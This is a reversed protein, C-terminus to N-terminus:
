QCKATPFPMMSYNSQGFTESSTPLLRGKASHEDVKGAALDDRMELIFFNDREMSRSVLSMNLHTLFFFSKKTCFYTKEGHDASRQLKKKKEGM